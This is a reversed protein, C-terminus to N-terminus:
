CSLKDLLKGGSGKRGVGGKGEGAREEEKASELLWLEVRQGGGKGCKLM